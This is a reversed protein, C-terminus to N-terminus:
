RIEYRYARRLRWHAVALRDVLLHELTNAPQIDRILSDRLDDFEEASEAPDNPLIVDAARLGHKIANTRVRAKGEPTKPGTSKQANARNAALKAASVPKKDAVPKKSAM